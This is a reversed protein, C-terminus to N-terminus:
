QQLEQKLKDMGATLDNVDENVVVIKDVFSEKMTSVEEKL